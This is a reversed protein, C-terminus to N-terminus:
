RFLPSLAAFGELDMKPFATLTSGSSLNFIKVGLEAVADLLAAFPQFRECPLPM